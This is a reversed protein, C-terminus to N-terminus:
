VAKGISYFGGRSQRRVMTRLYGREILFIWRVVFSVFLVFNLSNIRWVKTDEHGEHYFSEGM